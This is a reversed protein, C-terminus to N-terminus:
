WHSRTVEQHFHAAPHTTHKGFHCAVMGSSTKYVTDLLSGLVLNGTVWTADGKLLNKMSAPEQRDSGDDAVLGRFVQDLSHLLARKIHRRRSVNYQVLGVLDHVCLDWRGVPRNYHEHIWWRHEHTALRMPAKSTTMDSVTETVDDVGSQHSFNV